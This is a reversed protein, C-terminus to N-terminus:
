LLLFKTWDVALPLNQINNIRSSSDAEGPSVRRGYARTARAHDRTGTGPHFRGPHVPFLHLAQAAGAVTLLHPDAM